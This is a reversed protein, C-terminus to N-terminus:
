DDDGGEDETHDRITGNKIAERVIQHDSPEPPLWRRDLRAIVDDLSAKQRPWDQDAAIIRYLDDHNPRSIRIDGEITHIEITLGGYNGISIELTEDEIKFSTARAEERDYHSIQDPIWRVRGDATATKLREIFGDIRKSDM